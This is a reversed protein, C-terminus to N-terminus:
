FLFQGNEWTTKIIHWASCVKTCTQMHCQRRYRERTIDRQGISKM